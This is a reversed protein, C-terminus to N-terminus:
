GIMLFFLLLEGVGVLIHLLLGLVPFLMRDSKRMLGILALALGLLWVIGVVCLWNMMFQNQDNSPINTAASFSVCMTAIEVIGLAFSIMGFKSHTRNLDPESGSELVVAPEFPLDRGCYRCVVAEDQIKEACYPCKKM